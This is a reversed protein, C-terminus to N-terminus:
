DLSSLDQPAVLGTLASRYAADLHESVAGWSYKTTAMRYAREGLSQLLKRDGFLVLMARAFESVVGRPTVIGTGDDTVTERLGGVDTVVVPRGFAYAWQLVHSQYAERYPLAVLDAASFYTRMREIPVYRLDLILREALGLSKMRTMYPGFDGRPQGAIILYADPADRSMLACAEILLDLGKRPVIDGFFLVTPADAPLGIAARADAKSPGADQPNPLPTAHPVERIKFRKVRYHEVLRSTTNSSHSVILNAARYRLGDFVDSPGSSSVDHATYVIRVGCAKALAFYLFDGKGLRGHMHVIEPRFDWIARFFGWVKEAHARVRWAWREVGRSGDGRRRAIVAVSIGADLGEVVNDPAVAGVRVQLGREVLARAM